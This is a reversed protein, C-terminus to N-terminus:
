QHIDALNKKFLGGINGGLLGPTPGPVGRRKWYGFRIVLLLYLISAVFVVSFLIPWM